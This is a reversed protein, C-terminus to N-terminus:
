VRASFDPTTRGYEKSKGSASRKGVGKDNRMNWNSGAISPSFSSKKKRTKFITEVRETGIASCRKKGQCASASPQGEGTNKHKGAQVIGSRRKALKGAGIMVDERGGGIGTGTSIDPAKGTKRKVRRRQFWTRNTWFNRVAAEKGLGEPIIETKTSGRKRVFRPCRGQRWVSAWERQESTHKM